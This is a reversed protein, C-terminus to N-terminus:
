VPPKTMGSAMSGARTRRRTAARPGGRGRLPPRGRSRLRTARRRRGRADRPSAPRGRPHPRPPRAPVCPGGSWPQSRARSDSTGTPAPRDDDAAMVHAVRSAMSSRVPQAVSRCSSARQAWRTSCSTAPMGQPIMSWVADSCHVAPCTSNMSVRDCCRTCTGQGAGSVPNVRSTVLVFAGACARPRGTRRGVGATRPPSRSGRRGSGARHWARRGRRPRPDVQGGVLRGAGTVHDRLVGADQAGAVEQRAAPGHLMPGSSVADWAESRSSKRTVTGCSSQATSAARAAPARPARM